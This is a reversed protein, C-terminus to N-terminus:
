SAQKLLAVAKDGEGREELIFYATERVNYAKLYDKAQQVEAGSLKDGCLLAVDIIKEM